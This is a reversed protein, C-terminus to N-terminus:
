YFDSINTYLISMKHEAFFTMMKMKSVKKDLQNNYCEIIANYINEPTKEYSVLTENRIFNRRENENLCADIPNKAKFFGDLYKKSISPARQNPNNDKEIYWNDPCKISMISDGGDGRVIKELLAHNPLILPSIHKKLIPSWQKVHKHKHLQFNDHDSSIILLPDVVSDGFMDESTNNATHKTLAGIIDDGEAKPVEVLKCPFYTKICEKMYEATEKVFTWDIGSDNKDRNKKRGCKYNPFYDYRWSSNDCAIVLEGYKDKNLKHYHRISNFAYHCIMNRSDKSPNQACTKAAGDTLIPALYIQSFDIIQM